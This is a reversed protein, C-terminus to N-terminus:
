RLPSRLFNFAAPHLFQRLVAEPDAWEVAGSVGGTISRYTSELLDGYRALSYQSEVVVRNSAVVGEVADSLLQVPQLATMAEPDRSIREIVAEQSSENLRGFDIGEAPVLSAWTAEVDSESLPLAYERFIRALSDALEGRLRRLDIWDGPVTLASYLSELNLGQEAFDATVAPLNRGVVPRDFLWPELFALGFGEAVSTSVLHSAAAILSEFPLGSKAGAEFVVPLDWAQARDVWRQYLPLATPNEPALTCGFLQGPEAAAAWLMLEGINKRRIARTPYLILQEYDWGPVRASDAVSQPLAVPNPLLRLREQPVGARELVGFDRRNLVGFGVQEAVPYLWERLARADGDGLDDRLVGYNEARGDEPFDHIHLLLSEGARAARAVFATLSPNKGLHHNHVHWIDPAGSLKRRAASRLVRELEEVSIRESGSQYGLEPVAEFYHSLSPDLGSAEEGLVVIEIGTAALARLTSEVVRTVGGRRFHYHVIALRM